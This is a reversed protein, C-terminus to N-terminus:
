LLGSRQKRSRLRSRLWPVIAWAVSVVAAFCLVMGVEAGAEAMYQRAATVSVATIGVCFLAFGVFLKKKSIRHPESKLQSSPDTQQQIEKTLTENHLELRAADAHKRETEPQVSESAAGETGDVSTTLTALLEDLGAAYDSSFDAYQFPRLRFPIKCEQILVPIVEKGEDIAYAAEALVNKSTVSAPSVIVLMRSCGNLASEVEFEWRQGPRIDLKDMWVKAGKEKLDKALRMVFELDERAYSVFAASPDIPVAPHEEVFKSDPFQLMTLRMKSIFLAILAYGGVLQCVPITLLHEGIPAGTNTQPTILFLFGRHWDPGTSRIM